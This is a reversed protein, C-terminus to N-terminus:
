ALMSRAIHTDWGLKTDHNEKSGRVTDVRSGPHLVVGSWMYLDARIICTVGHKLKRRIDGGWRRGVTQLDTLGSTRHTASCSVLIVENM